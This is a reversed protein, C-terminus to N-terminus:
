KDMRTCKNYSFQADAEDLDFAFWTEGHISEGVMMFGGGLMTGGYGGSCSQRFTYSTGAINDKQTNTETYKHTQQFGPSLLQAQLTVEGFYYWDSWSPEGTDPDFDVRYGWGSCEPAETDFTVDIQASDSKVVLASEPVACSVNRYGYYSAADVSQQIMVRTEDYDGQSNSYSQVEFYRCRTVQAVEDYGCWSGYASDMVERQHFSPPSMPQIPPGAWAVLSGALTAFMFALLRKM